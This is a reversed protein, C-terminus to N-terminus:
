NRAGRLRLFDFARLHSVHRLSHVIRAFRAVRLFTSGGSLPVVPLLAVGIVVTDFVNWGGRLFGRLSGAARLRVVLEVCFFVLFGTHLRGVLDEHVPDCWGWVLVVTNAGIASLVVVDFRTVREAGSM